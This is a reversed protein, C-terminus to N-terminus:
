KTQIEPEGFSSTEMLIVTVHIDGVAVTLERVALEKVGGRITPAKTVQAM